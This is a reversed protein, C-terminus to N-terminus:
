IHTQTAESAVLPADGWPTGHLGWRLESQGGIGTATGGLPLWVVAPISFLMWWVGSLGIALHLSFTSDHM